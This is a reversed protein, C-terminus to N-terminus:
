RKEKGEQLAAKRKLAGAKATSAAENELANELYYVNHIFEEVAERFSIKKQEAIKMLEITIFRIESNVQMLDEEDM